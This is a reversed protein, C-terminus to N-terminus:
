RGEALIEFSVNREGYENKMELLYVGFDDVVVKDVTITSGCTTNSDLSKVDKGEHMWLFSPEPDSMCHITFNAKGGLRPATTHDLPYKPDPEPAGTIFSFQYEFCMYWKLVHNMGVPFSYSLVHTIIIIHENQM